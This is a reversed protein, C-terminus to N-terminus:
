EVVALLRQAPPSLALAPCVQVLGAHFARGLDCLLQEIVVCEVLEIAPNPTWSTGSRCRALVADGNVTLDVSREIGQGPFEIETSRRARLALLLDPLQEVIMAMDYGVDTPWRDQGFGSVRFEYGAAELLQSGEISLSVLDDVPEANTVTRVAGAPEILTMEFAMGVVGVWFSIPPAVAFAAAIEPM